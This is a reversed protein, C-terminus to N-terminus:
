VKEPTLLPAYRGLQRLEIGDENLVLYTNKVKGSVSRGDEWGEGTFSGVNVAVPGGEMSYAGAKHTDGYIFYDVHGAHHDQIFKLITGYHEEVPEPGFWRMVKSKANGLLSSVKWIREELDIVEEIYSSHYISEYTYTMMLELDAPSTEEGDMKRLWEVLQLSRAQIGDLHHGHTMLYNRANYRMSYIPYHMELNLGNISRNWSLHPKYVPYTDGRAIRELFESEQSMVTMHHDHNGVVYSVKLDMEALRQFFYRGDRIAKEPRARWLDFIDGLLVVRDCGRGYKWIEWILCDV